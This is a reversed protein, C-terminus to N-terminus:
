LMRIQSRRRYGRLTVVSYNGHLDKTLGVALCCRKEVSDRERKRKLKSGQKTIIDYTTNKNTQWTEKDVAGVISIGGGLRAVQGCYMGWDPM